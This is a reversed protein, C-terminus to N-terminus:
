GRVAKVAAAIAEDATMEAAQKEKRPKYEVIGEAARRGVTIRHPIGILDADKFKVGARENRDDIATDCGNKQLSQSIEEAVRM